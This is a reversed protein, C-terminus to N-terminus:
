CSDFLVLSFLLVYTDGKRDSKSMLISDGAERVAAQQLIAEDGDMRGM